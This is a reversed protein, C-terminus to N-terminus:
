SAPQDSASSRRDLLVFQVVVQKERAAAGSDTRRPASYARAIFASAFAVLAAELFAQNILAKEVRDASYTMDGREKIARLM